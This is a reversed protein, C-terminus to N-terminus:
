RLCELSVLSKELNFLPFLHKITVPQTNNKNYCCDFLLEWIYFNRNGDINSYSNNTSYIMGDIKTTYWFNNAM